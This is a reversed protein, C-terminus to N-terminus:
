QLQMNNTVKVNFLIVKIKSAVGASQPNGGVDYLKCRNICCDITKNLQRLKLHFLEKM